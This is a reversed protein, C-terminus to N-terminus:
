NNLPVIMYDEVTEVPNIFLDSNITEIVWRTLENTTPSLVNERVIHILHREGNSCWDDSYKVLDGVKFKAM